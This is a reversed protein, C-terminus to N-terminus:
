VALIQAHRTGDVDLVVNEDVFGENIAFEVTHTGVLNAVNARTLADTVADTTAAEGGYFEETVDITVGDEEFTEGIIDADCVTVLLGENTERETLIM